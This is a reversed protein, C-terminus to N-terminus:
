NIERRYLSSLKVEEKKMIRNFNDFHKILFLCLFLLSILFPGSSYQKMTYLVFGLYAFLTGVVFYNSIFAFFLFLLFLSATLLPSIMLLIGLFSATGKGGKFRMTMPYNHGIIVFLANIYILLTAEELIIGSRELMMMILLLSIVAKMIDVFAVFVGYRWGFLVTVNTAGANKMGSNRVNINKIKGVIQSGHICGFLYGVVIAFLVHM